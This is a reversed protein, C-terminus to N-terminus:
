TQKRKRSRSSTFAQWTQQKFGIAGKYWRYCYRSSNTYARCAIPRSDDSRCAGELEDLDPCVVGSLTQEVSQQLLAEIKPM